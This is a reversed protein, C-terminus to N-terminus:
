FSEEESHNEAIPWEPGKQIRRLHELRKERM